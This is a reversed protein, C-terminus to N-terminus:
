SEGPMLPQLTGKTAGGERRPLHPVEDEPSAPEPDSACSSFVESPCFALLAVVPPSPFGLGCAFPSAPPPFSRLLHLPRFVRNREGLILSVPFGVETPPFSGWLPGPFGPLHSCDCADASIPPLCARHTRAARRHIVAPSSTVELPTCSQQSPFARFSSGWSRNRYSVPGHFEFKSSFRQPTSFVRSRFRLAVHYRAECPAQALIGNFPFPFRLSTPGAVLQVASQRHPVRLPITKSSQLRRKPSPSRDRPFSKFHTPTELKATLTL